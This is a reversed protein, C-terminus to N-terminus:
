PPANTASHISPRHHTRYRTQIICVGMPASVQGTVGALLESLYYSEATSCGRAQKWSTFYRKERYNGDDALYVKPRVLVIKRDLCFVRCNYRVNRHLVPM